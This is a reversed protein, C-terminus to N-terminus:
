SGMRDWGYGTKLFQQWLAWQFLWNRETSAQDSCRTELYDRITAMEWGEAPFSSHLGLFAGNRWWEWQKWSRWFREEAPNPSIMLFSLEACIAFGLVALALIGFNCAAALLMLSMQWIARSIRWSFWCQCSQVKKFLYFHIVLRKVHALSSSIVLGLKIPTPNLIHARRGLAIWDLSDESVDKIPGVKRKKKEYAPWPQNTIYPLTNWCVGTVQRTENARQERLWQSESDLATERAAHGIRGTILFFTSLLPWALNFLQLHFSCRPIDKILQKNHQLDCSKCTAPKEGYKLGFQLGQGTELLLSLHVVGFCWKCAVVTKYLCAIVHVAYTNHLFFFFVEFIIVKM